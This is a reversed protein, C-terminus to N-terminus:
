PCAAQARQSRTRIGPSARPARSTQPARKRRKSPSHPASATRKSRRLTPIRTPPPARPATTPRPQPPQPAPASRKPLRRAPPPPTPPTYAAHQTDHPAATSEVCLKEVERAEQADPSSRRGLRRFQSGLFLWAGLGWLCAEDILVEHRRVWPLLSAWVVHSAMPPHLLMWVLWLLHITSVFPLLWVIPHMLIPRVCQYASWVAVIRLAEAVSARRRVSGIRRVTGHSAQGWADYSRTRPTPVTALARFAHVLVVTTVVCELAGAWMSAHFFPHRWRSVRGVHPPPSTYTLGHPSHRPM